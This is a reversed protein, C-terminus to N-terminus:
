PVFPTSFSAPPSTDRLIILEVRRNSAQGELTTNSAIPRTGAFGASSFRDARLHHYETFYRILANARATSLDWNSPFAKTNISQNDTHGEVAILNPLDRVLGTILDLFEEIQSNIASSGPNFLADDSIQINLGRDTSTIKVGKPAKSTTIANAVSLFSRANSQSKQKENMVVQQNNPIPMNMVSVDGIARTKSFSGALSDSLVRYKGENVSSVSYMVVFFAFLLTIFDAYSVLWREMNEHEEHKKKM